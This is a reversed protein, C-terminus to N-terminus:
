RKVCFEPHPGFCKLMLALVHDTAAIIGMEFTVAVEDSKALYCM